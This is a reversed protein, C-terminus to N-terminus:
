MKSYVLEALDAMRTSYGAENDYWSVVKLMDDSQDMLGADLISSYGSGVIDSSVIPDTNYQLVGKMRGESAEKMKGKVEDLTYPKELQVYLEIISGTMVPVRLASGKVKGTLEPLIIGLAKAAGTSTPIINGAAARARRMDSHATDILRQDGTYAHITSLYGSKIGWNDQLVKAVPATCNTTCSANSVILDEGTLEDDNVGLVVSKIKPDGVPYSLVVRKAGANLHAEAKDYTKFLGTCDLVVDVGLESWPLAGPDRESYLNISHGAVDIVNNNMNAEYSLPGMITDYKMLHFLMDQPTLDNIAVIEVDNRELL